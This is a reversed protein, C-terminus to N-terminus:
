SPPVQRMPNVPAVKNQAEPGTWAPAEIVDYPLGAPTMAAEIPVSGSVAAGYLLFQRATINTTDPQVWVEGSPGVILEYAPVRNLLMMVVLPM